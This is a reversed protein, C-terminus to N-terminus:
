PWYRAPLSQALLLSAPKALPFWFDGRAPRRAGTTLQRPRRDAERGMGETGQGGMGPEGVGSPLPGLLNIQRESEVFCASFLLLQQEGGRHM